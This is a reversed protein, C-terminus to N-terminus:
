YVETDLAKRRTAQREYADPDDYPVDRVTHIQSRVGLQRLIEVARTKTIIMGDAVAERRAPQRHHKANANLQHIAYTLADDFNVVGYPVHARACFQKAREVLDPIPEDEHGRLAEKILRFYLRPKEPEPHKTNM